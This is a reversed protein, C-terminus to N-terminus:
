SEGFGQLWESENGDAATAVKGDQNRVASGYVSLFPILPTLGPGVFRSAVPNGAEESLLPMLSVVILELGGWNRQVLDPIVGSRVVDFSYLYMGLQEAAVSFLYRGNFLRMGHALLAIGPSSSQSNIQKECGDNRKWELLRKIATLLEACDIKYYMIDCGIVLNIQKINQTKSTPSDLKQLFASIGSSSWNLMATGVECMDGKPSSEGQNFKLENEMLNLECLSLALDNGDTLLVNSPTMKLFNIAKAAAMGGIGCGCGLELLSFPQHTEDSDEKSSSLSSTGYNVFCGKQSLMRKGIDSFLFEAMMLSGEYVRTGTACTSGEIVTSTVTKTDINNSTSETKNDKTLTSRTNHKIDSVQILDSPRVVNKNIAEDFKAQARQSSCLQMHSTPTTCHIKFTESSYCALPNSIEVLEIRTIIEEDNDM